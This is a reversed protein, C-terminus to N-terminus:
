LSKYGSTILTLDVLQFDKLIKEPWEPTPQNNYFQDYKQIASEIKSLSGFDLEDTERSVLVSRYPTENPKISGALPHSLLQHGIHIMDRVKTLVQKATDASVVEEDKYKEVVAPNNTVILVNKM